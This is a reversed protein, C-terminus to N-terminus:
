VLKPQGFNRAHRAGGLAARDAEGQTIVRAAAAACLTLRPRGDGAHVCPDADGPSRERVLRALEISVLASACARHARARGHSGASRPRGQRDSTPMSVRPSNGPASTTFMTCRGFADNTKTNATARPTSALPQPSVLAPGGSLPGRSAPTFAPRSAPLRSAPRSAPSLVRARLPRRRDDLGDAACHNARGLIPQADRDARRLGHSRAPRIRM